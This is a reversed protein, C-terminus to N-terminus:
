LIPGLRGPVAYRHGGGFYGMIKDEELLTVQDPNNLEPAAAFQTALVAQVTIERKRTRGVREAITGTDQRAPRFKVLMMPLLVRRSKDVLEVELYRIFTESCDVWIDSVTGALNGNAGYVEMGRPDPDRPEVYFDTAIRLPLIRPEGEFTVDPQDPRQAYAAAGLGDLM